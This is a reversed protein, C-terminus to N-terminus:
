PDLFLIKELIDNEWTLSIQPWHFNNQCVQDLQPSKHYVVTASMDIFSTKNTLVNKFLRRVFFLTVRSFKQYKTVGLTVSYLSNRYRRSLIASNASIASFCVCHWTKALISGTCIDGFTGIYQRMQRFRRKKSILIVFYKTPTM